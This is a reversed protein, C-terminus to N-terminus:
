LTCEEFSVRSSEGKRIFDSLKEESKKKKKKKKKKKSGSAERSRRRDQCGTM